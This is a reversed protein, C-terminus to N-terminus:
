CNIVKTHVKGVFEKYFILINEVDIKEIPNEKGEDENYDMQHVISNRRKYMDSMKTKAEKFTLGMSVVVEEFINDESIIKLINITEEISILSKRKYKSNINNEIFLVSEAIDGEIISIIQELTLTIKMNKFKNTAVKDGHFNKFLSYKFIESLYRDLSSFTLAVISRLILDAIKSDSPQEREFIELKKELSEIHNFFDSLIKEEKKTAEIRHPEITPKFITQDLDINILNSEEEEEINTKVNVGM